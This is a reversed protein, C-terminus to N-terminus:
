MVRIVCYDQANFLNGSMKIGGIQTVASQLIYTGQSYANVGRTFPYAIFVVTYRLTTSHLNAASIEWLCEIYKFLQLLNGNIVTWM